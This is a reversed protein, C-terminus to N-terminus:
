RVGRLGLSIHNLNAPHGCVVRSRSADRKQLATLAANTQPAGATPFIDLLKQRVAPKGMDFTAVQLALLLARYRAGAPTVDNLSVATLTALEAPVISDYVQERTIVQDVKCTPDTCSANFKDLVCQDNTNTGTLDGPPACTAYGRNTPDTLFETNLQSQTCQQAWSTSVLLLVFLFALLM